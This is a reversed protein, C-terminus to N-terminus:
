WIVFNQGQDFQFSKCVVVLHQRFAKEKEVHNETQKIWQPDKIM